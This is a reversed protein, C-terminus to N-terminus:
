RRGSVARRSKLTRARVPDPRLSRVTGELSRYVRVTVVVVQPSFVPMPPHTTPEQIRNVLPIAGIRLLMSIAFLVHYGTLQFPGLPLSVGEMATLAFGSIIATVGGVMGAIATGAAVYM